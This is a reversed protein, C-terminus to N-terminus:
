ILVIVSQNGNADERIIKVNDRKGYITMDGGNGAEFINVKENM